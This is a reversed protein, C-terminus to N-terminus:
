IEVIFDPNFKESNDCQYKWDGKFGYPNCVVRCTGITYDSSTHIHGHCWLVINPHDLIFQELDSAFWGKDLESYDPPCSKFSPAFHTAVVIRHEPFDKSMRDIFDVSTDFMEKIHKPKIKQKDYKIREFDAYNTYCYKVVEPNMGCFDTWLTTLILIIDSDIFVAEYHNTVESVCLDSNHYDHNGFVGYIKNKPNTKKSKKLDDLIEKTNTHSDTIDGCIITIVDSEPDPIELDKNHELHLDSLIKFKRKM